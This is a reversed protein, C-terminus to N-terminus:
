ETESTLGSISALLAAEVGDDLLVDLAGTIRAQLPEVGEDAPDIVCRQVNAGPLYALTRSTATDTAFPDDMAAVALVSATLQSAHFLIAPDAAGITRPLDARGREWDMAVGAPLDELWGLRRGPFYGRAATLIPMILHWRWLMRPRAAAAYDPWHAHQAGVLLLRDAFLAQPALFAAIGGFSHGVIVLRDPADSLQRLWGIVADM